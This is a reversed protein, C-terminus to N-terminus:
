WHIRGEEIKLIKNSIKIVFRFCFFGLWVTSPSFFSPSSSIVGTRVTEIWVALVSLKNAYRSECGPMLAANNCSIPVLNTLVVKKKEKSKEYALLFPYEKIYKYRHSTNLLYINKSGNWGAWTWYYVNSYSIDKHTFPIFLNDFIHYVFFFDSM